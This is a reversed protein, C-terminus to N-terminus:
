HWEGEQVAQREIRLHADVFHRWHLKAEERAALKRAYRLRETISLLGDRKALSRLIEYPQEIVESKGEIKVEYKRDPFSLGQSEIIAALDGRTPMVPLAIKHVGRRWLQVLEGQSANRLDDIHTWSLVM